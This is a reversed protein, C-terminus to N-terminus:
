ASSRPRSTDSEGSWSRGLAAAQHPRGTARRHPWTSAPGATRPFAVGTEKELAPFFQKAEPSQGTTQWTYGPGDALARRILRRGIRQRQHEITISIKNISGVRCDDCVMWVLTGIDYGERDFMRIRRHGAPRRPPWYLFRVEQRQTTLLIWRLRLPSLYETVPPTM